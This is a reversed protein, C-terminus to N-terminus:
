LAAWQRYWLKVIGGWQRHWLKVIGGWQRRWPNLIGGWQRRWLKVIAGWQRRWLPRGTYNQLIKASRVMTSLSFWCINQIDSIYLCGHILCLDILLSNSSNNLCTKKGFARHEFLFQLVGRNCSSETKEDDPSNEERSFKLKWSIRTQNQVLLNPNASDVRTPSITATVFTSRLLQNMLKCENQERSISNAVEPNISM